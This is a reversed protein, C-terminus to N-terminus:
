CAVIHLKDNDPGHAGPNTVDIIIFVFLHLAVWM